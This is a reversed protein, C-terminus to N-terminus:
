DLWGWLLQLNGSGSPSPVSGTTDCAEQNEPTYYTEVELKVKRGDALTLVYVNGTMQVCSTYSWFSSLATAPSGIGSGDSVFSCDPQFYAETRHTLGDPEVTLTELETGGATRAGTVCSPGAVGSNLRIVFRRAALDWETSEFADQDSVAVPELGTDTFRLYVYSETPTLGGGTADITTRFLGGDLPETSVAAANVTEKLDLQPIQEDVCSPPVPDCAMPPAGEDLPVFADAVDDSSDTSDDDGCGSWLVACLLPLCFRRTM